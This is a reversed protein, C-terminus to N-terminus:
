SAAEIATQIHGIIRSRHVVPVALMAAVVSAWEEPTLAVTVLTDTLWDSDGDSM